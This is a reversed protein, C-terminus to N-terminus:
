AKKELLACGYQLEREYPPAYVYNVGTLSSPPAAASAVPAQYTAQHLLMPQRPNQGYVYIKIYAVHQTDGIVVAKFRFLGDIDVAQVTYPDAVPKFDLVRASEGQNIQCRLVPAALLTAPLLLGCLLLSILTFARM